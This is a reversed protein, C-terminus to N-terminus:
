FYLLDALRSLFSRRLELLQGDDAAVVGQVKIKVPLLGFLRENKAADILYALENNVETLQAETEEVQASETGETPDNNNTAIIPFGAAIM